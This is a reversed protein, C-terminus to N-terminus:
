SEGLVVVRDAEDPSFGMHWLRAVRADTMDPPVTILYSRTQGDAMSPYPDTLGIAVLPEGDLDDLRYLVAGVDDARDLEVAGLEEMFKPGYWSRMVRRQEVNEIQLIGAADLEFMDKDVAVSELAYIEYGDSWAIAPGESNHARDLSDVNVQNPPEGTVFLDSWAISWGTRELLPVLPPLEPLDGGRHWYDCWSLWGVDQTGYLWQPWMVSRSSSEFARVPVGLQEAVSANIDDAMSPPLGYAELQIRVAAVDEKDDLYSLAYENAVMIAPPSWPGKIITPPALNDHAKYVADVLPRLEELPAATGYRGVATWKEVIEPLLAELEEISLKKTVM